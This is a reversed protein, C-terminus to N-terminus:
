KALKDIEAKLAVEHPYLSAGNRQKPDKRRLGKTKPDMVTVNEDIRFYNYILSDSIVFSKDMYDLKVKNLLVDDQQGNVGFDMRLETPYVDKPLMFTVEQNTEKGSVPLWVSSEETFNISGDETYYLHLTDNKKLLLDLSVKFLDKTDDVVVAEAAEEKVEKKCSFLAMSVFLSALIVRTKMNFNKQM